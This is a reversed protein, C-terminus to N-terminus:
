GEGEGTQKYWIGTQDLPPRLDETPWPWPNRHPNQPYTPNWPRPNLKTWVSGEALEDQARQLEIRLRGMERIAAEKNEVAYGREEVAVKLLRENEDRQAEAENREKIADQYYRKTATWKQKWVQAEHRAIQILDGEASNSREAEKLEQQIEHARVAGHLGCWLPSKPIAKAGTHADYYGGVSRTWVFKRYRLPLLWLCWWPRSLVAVVTRDKTNEIVDFIM